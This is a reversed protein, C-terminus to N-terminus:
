FTRQWILPLLFTQNALIPLSGFNRVNIEKEPYAEKLANFVAPFSDSKITYVKLLDLLGMNFFDNNKLDLPDIQMVEVLKRVTRIRDNKNGWKTNFKLKGSGDRIVYGESKMWSIFDAKAAKPHEKRSLSALREQADKAAEAATKKIEM